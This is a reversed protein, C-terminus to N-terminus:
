ALPRNPLRRPLPRDERKNISPSIEDDTGSGQALCVRADKQRMLPKPVPEGGGESPEQKAMAVGVEAGEPGDGEGGEVPQFHTLRIETPGDFHLNPGQLLAQTNALYRRTAPALLTEPM